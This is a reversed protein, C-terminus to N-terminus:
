GVPAVPEAIADLGKPALRHPARNVIMRESTQERERLAKCIAEINNNYRAALALGNNRVEDVIPDNMM